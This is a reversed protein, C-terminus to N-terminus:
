NKPPLPNAGDTLAVQNEGQWWNAASGSAMLLVLTLILAQM